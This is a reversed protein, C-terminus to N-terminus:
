KEPDIFCRAYDACVDCSPARCIYIGEMDCLQKYLFKKWKMNKDNRGALAPFNTMMMRSLEDRSFLGLDSWLHDLAMCGACVIDAIWFESDDRGARSSLLLGRLDEIEPARSLDLMEKNRQFRPLLQGFYDGILTRFAPEALGMYQPLAGADLAWGSLMQALVRDNVGGPAAVMLAAYLAQRDSPEGVNVIDPDMVTM